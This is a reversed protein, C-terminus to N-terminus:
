QKFICSLDERKWHKEMESVDRKLFKSVAIKIENMSLQSDSDVDIEHFNGLRSIIEMSCREVISNKAQRAAENPPIKCCKSKRRHNAWDIRPQNRNLGNLSLLIVGIQYM